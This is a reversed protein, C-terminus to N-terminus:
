SRPAPDREMRDLCPPPPRTHDGGTSASRAAREAARARAAVVLERGGRGAPEHPGRQRALARGAPAGDRSRRALAHGRRFREIWWRYGTVRHAPWDYLPNGWLQGNASLADPPAGGVEGTAFLEPWAEVDAGDGSVYIPVDGVLRVGHSRAYDRLE